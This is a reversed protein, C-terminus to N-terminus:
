PASGEVVGGMVVEEPVLAVATPGHERPVEVNLEAGVAGGLADEPILVGHGLRVWEPSRLPHLIGEHFREALLILLLKKDEVARRVEGRQWNGKVIEREAFSIEPFAEEGIGIAM